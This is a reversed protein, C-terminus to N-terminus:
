TFPNIITLQNEIVMQHQMVESYLKTCNAELASAVILADFLQFKYRNVLQIAKQFTPSATPVQQCDNLLDLWLSLIEEKSYKFKRKCVNAVETLVQSSLTPNALLIKGALKQKRLDTDLLYLVINSDIFAKSM